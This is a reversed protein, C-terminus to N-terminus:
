LSPAHLAIRNGESDLVVARYGHPGISHVDKVVEGGHSKVADVAAKLRGTADLYILPGSGSPRAGDDPVYICGGVANNEHPLIGMSFGHGSEKSVKVGMVASYFAIARDLNEAPIDVWVIRNSM